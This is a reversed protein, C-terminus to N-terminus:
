MFSDSDRGANLYLLAFTPRINAINWLFLPTKQLSHRYTVPKCYFKQRTIKIISYFLTKNTAKLM